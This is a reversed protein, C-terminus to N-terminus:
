KPKTVMSKRAKPMTISNGIMRTRSEFTPMTVDLRRRLERRMATSPTTIKEATMVGPASRTLGMTM